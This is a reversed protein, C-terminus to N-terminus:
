QMAFLLAVTVPKIKRPELHKSRPLFAMVFRSLMNFLLSMVKGVFTGITLTITNGTTVYPYSLQTMFFTPCRRMDISVLKLLSWSITFPLSAQHAATWPTVFLQVHSLSQVVAIIILFM